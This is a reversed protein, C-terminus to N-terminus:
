GPTLLAIDVAEAKAREVIAPVTDRVTQRPDPVWGMMGFFTPAAAGIVGEDCLEPLREIPFMCNVDRDADLHNYHTHTITLAEPPTDSPIARYSWDGDPKMVDFPEQTRLHVGGTTLLAVRCEALPRALPTWALRENRVDALAGHGGPKMWEAWREQWQPTFEWDLLKTM